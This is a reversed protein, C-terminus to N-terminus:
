DACNGDNGLLCFYFTMAHSNRAEVSAGIAAIAFFELKGEGSVVIIFEETLKAQAVVHDASRLDNGVSEQLEALFKAVGLDEFNVPISSRPRYVYTRHATSLQGYKGEFSVNVVGAPIKGEVSGDAGTTVSFAIEAKYMFYRPPNQTELHQKIITLSTEFKERVEDPSFFIVEEASLPIPGLVFNAAIVATLLRM